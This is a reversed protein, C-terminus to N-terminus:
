TNNKQSEKTQHAKIKEVKFNHRGKTNITKEIKRWLDAHKEKGEM